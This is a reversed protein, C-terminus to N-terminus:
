SVHRPDMSPLFVQHSFVIIFLRDKTIIALLLQDPLLLSKEISTKKVGWQLYGFGLHNMAMVFTQLCM